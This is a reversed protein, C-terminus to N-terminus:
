QPCRATAVVQHNALKSVLCAGEKVSHFWIERRKEDWADDERVEDEGQVVASVRLNSRAMEWGACGIHLGTGVQESQEKNQRQKGEAGDEVRDQGVSKVEKQTVRGQGAVAAGVDGMYFDGEFVIAGVDKSGKVAGQAADEGTRIRDDLLSGVCRLFPHFRVVVSDCGCRRLAWLLRLPPPLHANNLCM